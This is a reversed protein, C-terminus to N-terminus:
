VLQYRDLLGGLKRSVARRGHVRDYLERGGLSIADLLGPSGAVARIAEAFEQPTDALLINERPVLGDVGEAGVRTSLM